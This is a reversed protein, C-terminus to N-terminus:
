AKWGWVWWVTMPAALALWLGGVLRGARDLWSRESLWRGRIWLVLWSLGVGVPVVLPPVIRGLLADVWSAALLGFVAAGCALFGPQRALDAGPPRPRLLRLVILVVSATSLPSFALVALDQALIVVQGRNYTVRMPYREVQLVKLVAYSSVNLVSPILLSPPTGLLVTKWYTAEGLSRTRITKASSVLDKLFERAPVLGIGVAAVLALADLLTFRRYRATERTTDPTSKEPPM